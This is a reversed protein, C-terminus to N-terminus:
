LGHVCPHVHPQGLLFRRGGAPGGPAAPRGWEDPLPRLGRRQVPVRGQLQAATGMARPLRRRGSDDPDHRDRTYRAPLDHRRAHLSRDHEVARRRPVHRRLRHRPLQALQRPERRPHGLDRHRAGPLPVAVPLQRRRLRNRAARAGPQRVAVGARRPRVLGPDGRRAPVHRRGPGARRPLRVARLRGGGRQVPVLRQPLRVRCGDGGQDCPRRWSLPGSYVPPNMGVFPDPPSYADVQRVRFTREYWALASEEAASLGSPAPGPLM